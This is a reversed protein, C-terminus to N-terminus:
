AVYRVKSRVHVSISPLGKEEEAVPLAPQLFEIKKKSTVIHFEEECFVCLTDTLEYGFLWLQACLFHLVNFLKASVIYQSEM